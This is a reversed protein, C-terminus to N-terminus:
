VTWTTGGSAYVACGGAVSSFIVEGRLPAAEDTNLDAGLEVLRRVYDPFTLDGKRQSPRLRPGDQEGAGAVVVVRTM